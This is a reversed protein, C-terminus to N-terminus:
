FTDRFINMSVLRTLLKESLKKKKEPCKKLYKVFFNMSFNKKLQVAHPQLPKRMSTKHWFMEYNKRIVKELVVGASSSSFRKAIMKM